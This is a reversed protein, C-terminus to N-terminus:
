EGTRSERPQPLTIRKEFSSGVCSFTKFSSVSNRIPSFGRYVLFSSCGAVVVVVVVVVVFVFVVGGEETHRRPAFCPKSPTQVSGVGRLRHELRM